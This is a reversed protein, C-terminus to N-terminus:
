PCTMEIRHQSLFYETRRTRTRWTTITFSSFQSWFIAQSLNIAHVTERLFLKISQRHGHLTVDIEDLCSYSIVKRLFSRGHPHLAEAMLSWPSLGRSKWREHSTTSRLFHFHFLSTIPQHHPQQSTTTSTEVQESRSETGDFDQWELLIHPPVSAQRRPTRRDLM